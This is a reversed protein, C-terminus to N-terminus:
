RNKKLESLEAELKSLRSTTNEPAAYKFESGAVKRLFADECEYIDVARGM